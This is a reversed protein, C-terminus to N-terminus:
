MPEAMPRLGVLFVRTSEPQIATYRIADAVETPSMMKELHADGPERGTGFAFTTHVGGPAVVSVRIGRRRVEADIAQAFGYQAFKTACYVAEHPLGRLGAVSNVFILHGSRRTLMDPLFANTCLFTSRMNSNMMWDYEAATTAEVACYKGVGVNNILLDAPGFAENTAARLREVEAEQTLDAAVALAEHGSGQLEDVLADLESATRASAVIRAGEGALALATARGIGRSAGTIVAVRDRLQM